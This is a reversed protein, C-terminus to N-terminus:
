AAAATEVWLADSAVSGLHIEQRQGRIRITIVASGSRRERVTLRTEAALGLRSLHALLAPEADSVRVIAVEGGPGADSLKMVTPLTRVNM